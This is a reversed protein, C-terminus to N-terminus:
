SGAQTKSVTWPNFRALWVDASHALCPSGSRKYEMIIRAAEAIEDMADEYRVYGGMNYPMMTVYARQGDDTHRVYADLDYRQM